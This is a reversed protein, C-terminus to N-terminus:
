LKKYKMETSLHDYFATKLIMYNTLKILLYISYIFYLNIKNEFKRCNSINYPYMKFHLSNFTTFCLNLFNQGKPQSIKIGKSRM